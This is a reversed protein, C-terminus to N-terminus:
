SQGRHPGKWNRYFSEFMDAPMPKACYYGQVQDVGLSAVVDWDERKEVGEAVITMNLKRALGISTELIARQSSSQAVGHAFQRDIKLENFPLNQLEQLSSNGTGFDDISLSFKNLRLRMLMELCDTTNRMVQSESVELILQGNPIGYQEGLQLIHKSFEELRFSNISLNISNKLAMGMANWRATQIVAKRYIAVSLQDMLGMKEALPIFAGPGLLGRVPHQWRALTEVGVIAETKTSVKPQYHLVLQPVDAQGEIAARLEPETLTEMHNVVPMRNTPSHKDLLPQLQQANAPKLLSGLVPFEYTKALNMASMLLSSDGDSLLILAGKYDSQHAQRIFEAGDMQAMNLSCLIIEFPKEMAILLGTAVEGDSATVIKTYGLSQLADVTRALSPPSDDVVLIRTAKVSV